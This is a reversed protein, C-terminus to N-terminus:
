VLGEALALIEMRHNKVMLSKILYFHEHTSDLGLHKQLLGDIKSLHMEKVIHGAKDKIFLCNLEPVITYSMKNVILKDQVKKHLEQIKALHDQEKIWQDWDLPFKVSLMLLHDNIEAGGSDTDTGANSYLEQIRSNVKNLLEQFNM